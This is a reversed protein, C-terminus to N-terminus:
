TLGTGVDYLYGYADCSRDAHAWTLAGMRLSLETTTGLGAIAVEATTGENVPKCKGDRVAVVLDATGSELNVSRELDSPGDLAIQAVLLGKDFDNTACGTLALTLLM